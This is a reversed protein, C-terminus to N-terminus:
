CSSKQESAPSTLSPNSIRIKELEPGTLKIVAIENLKKYLHNSVENPIPMPKSGIKTTMCKQLDSISYGMEFLFPVIDFLEHQENQPQFSLDPDAKLTFRRRKKYPHNIVGPSYHDNYANKSDVIKDNRSIKNANTWCVKEKIVFVLDCYLRSFDPYTDGSVWFNIDGEEPSMQSMHCFTHLFCGNWVYPDQNGTTKDHYVVVKDFVSVQRKPHYILFGAM